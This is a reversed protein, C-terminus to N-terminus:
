YESRSLLQLQFHGRYEYNFFFIQQGQMMTLSPAPLSYQHISDSFPVAQASGIMADKIKLELKECVLQHLYCKRLHSLIYM